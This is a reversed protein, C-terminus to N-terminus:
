RRKAAQHNWTVILLVLVAWVIVAILPIPM